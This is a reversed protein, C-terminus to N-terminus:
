ECRGAVPRTALWARIEAVTWARVNPSLRVGLPFGEVEVLRKVQMWNNVIGAAKLDAFRVYQPLSGDDDADNRTATKRLEVRRRDNRAAQAAKDFRARQEPPIAPM